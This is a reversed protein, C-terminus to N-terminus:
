IKPSSPVKGTKGYIVQALSLDTLALTDVLVASRFELHRPLSKVDLFADLLQFFDNKSQQTRTSLRKAAASLYVGKPRPYTDLDINVKRYWSSQEFASSLTNAGHQAQLSRFHRNISITAGLAIALNERKKLMSASPIELGEIGAAIEQIKKQITEIALISSQKTPSPGTTYSQKTQESM